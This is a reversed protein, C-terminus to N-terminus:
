WVLEADTGMRKQPIIDNPSQEPRPRNAKDNPAAALADQETKIQTQLDMKQAFLERLGGLSGDNM